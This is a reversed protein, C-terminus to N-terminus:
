YQENRLVKGTGRPIIQGHTLLLAAVTGVLQLRRQLQPEPHSNFITDGYLSGGERFPM